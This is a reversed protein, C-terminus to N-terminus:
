LFKATRKYKASNTYKIAGQLKQMLNKLNSM